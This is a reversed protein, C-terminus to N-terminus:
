TRRNARWNEIEEKHAECFAKSHEKLVRDVVGPSVKLKKAITNVGVESLYYLECVWEIDEPTDLKKPRGPGRVERKVCRYLDTKGDTIREVEFHKSLVEELWEPPLYWFGTTHPWMGECCQVHMVLDLGPPSVPVLWSVETYHLGNLIYSKATPIPSPKSNFTNFVFVGDTRMRNALRKIVAENCAWYNVAQRCFVVDFQIHTGSLFDAVEGYSIECEAERLADKDMMEECSDVLVVGVAGAKMAAVALEGAGGCLDLVLKGRLDGALDILESLPRGYPEVYRAYLRRYNDKEIYDM